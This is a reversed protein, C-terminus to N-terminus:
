EHEAEGSLLKSLKMELKNQKENEVASRSTHKFLTCNECTQSLQLGNTSAEFSANKPDQVLSVVRYTWRLFTPSRSASPATLRPFPRVLPCPLRMFARTGLTDSLMPMLAKRTPDRVDGQPRSRYFYLAHGLIQSLPVGAEDDLHGYVSSLVMSLEHAHTGALAPVLSPSVEANRLWSVATVTSVGLHQSVGDKSRFSHELFMSQLMMLALGGTRRGAFLAGKM